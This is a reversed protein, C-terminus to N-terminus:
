RVAQELQRHVPAEVVDRVELAVGRHVLDGGDPDGLVVMRGAVHRVRDMRLDRAATVAYREEFPEEVTDTGRDGVAFGGGAGSSSRRTRYQWGALIRPVVRSGPM